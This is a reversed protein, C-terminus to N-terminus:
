RLKPLTLLLAHERRASNRFARQTAGHFHPREQSAIAVRAFGEDEAAYPAIVDAELALDGVASDAIVMAVWAGPQLARRLARFFARLEGHWVDRPDSDERTPTNAQYNRRAGFEQNEFTAIPLGMWRLRARHHEVYDYTAAYPPSTVCLNALRAPLSRLNTADDLHVSSKAFGVGARAETFAQKRRMFDEVKKRWLKTTFGAAIRKPELGSASDGRKQSVKTLIASLCLLLDNRVEPPALELIGARLSDLELLVHPAFLTVDDRGYRKTAGARTKRRQEAFESTVTIGATVRALHEADVPALKARALEVALPNLDTGWSEIGLGAAEVLVTGSGCFPDLVVAREFEVRLEEILRRATEPHMRAPYSHFGHVHARTPDDEERTDLGQQAPPVDLARRLRAGLTADGRV